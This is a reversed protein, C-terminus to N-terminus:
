NADISYDAKNRDIRMRELDLAIKKMNKQQYHDKVEKHVSADRSVSINWKDRLKFKASHFAAYYARSIACRLKADKHTADESERFLEEAIILYHLWDFSM